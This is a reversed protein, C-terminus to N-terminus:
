TRSLTKRIHQSAIITLLVFKSYSLYKLIYIISPGITLNSDDNVMHISTVVHCITSPDRYLRRLNNVVLGYFWSEV